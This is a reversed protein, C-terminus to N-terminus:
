VTGHEGGLRERVYDTADGEALALLQDVQAHTLQTDLLRLLVCRTKAVEYLITAHQRVSPDLDVVALLASRVLDSVTLGRAEATRQVAEVLSAPLRVTFMQLPTMTM